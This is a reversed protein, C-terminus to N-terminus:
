KSVPGLELSSKACYLPYIKMRPLIDNFDLTTHLIIALHAAPAHIGVRKM